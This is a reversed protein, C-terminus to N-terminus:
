AGDAARVAEIGHLLTEYDPMEDKWADREVGNLVYSLRPPVGPCIRSWELMDNGISHMPFAPAAMAEFDELSGEEPELCVGVVPPLASEALYANIQPVSAMCHECTTSLLAVLYEGEGLDLTEGYETTITYSSFVGGESASPAEDGAPTNKESSPATKKAARQNQDLQPVVGACIVAALLLPAVVRTRAFSFSTGGGERPVLGYWALAVLLLMVVNKAITQLPTMSVAGLCGCEELGHVQWAYLVLGSFFVLMAASLGLVLRRWPSGLLMSLGLFTEIALTGFAVLKLLVPTTFIQYALIQGIFLNLDQAKLAAALLFTAGLLLEAGRGAYTLLSKM